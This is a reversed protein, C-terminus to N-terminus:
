CCPYMQEEHNQSSSPGLALAGTSESDPFLRHGPECVKDEKQSHRRIASIVLFCELTQNILVSIGNTFVGEHGSGGECLDGM